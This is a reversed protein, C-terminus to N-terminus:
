ESVELAPSTLSVGTVRTTTGSSSSAVRVNSKGALLSHAAHLGTLRASQVAEASMFPSAKHTQIVEQQLSFSLWANITSYM